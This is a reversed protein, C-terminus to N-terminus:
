GIKRQQSLVAPANNGLSGTAAIFVKNKNLYHREKVINTSVAILGKLRRRNGANKGRNERYGNTGTQFRDIERVTIAANVFM